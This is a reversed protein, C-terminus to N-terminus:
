SSLSHQSSSAIIFLIHQHYPIGAHPLSSLSYSVIIPFVPELFRHYLTDSSSLSYRSWSAIIFLCGSRYVTGGPQFYRYNAVPTFYHHNPFLGLGVVTIPGARFRCDNRLCRWRYEGLSFIEWPLYCLSHWSLRARLPRNPPGPSSRKIATISESVNGEWVEIVRENACPVAAILCM